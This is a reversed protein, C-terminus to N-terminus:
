NSFTFSYLKARDFEFELQILDLNINKQFCLSGDTITKIIKESTIIYEGNKDFITVALWGNEFVDVSILIDRFGFPMLTTRIKGTSEKKIQEYGAFGDPRLTALCLSGNRWGFHLYDSGGYYLRIENSLFIPTACPYVCGFDYDLLKNSTPILATGPSIRNWNKTDTSWALETWTRDSETSYIVPLGLYVGAFYFVPMAYIQDNADDGQLVVEEKTWNFFDESELRAVQRLVKKNRKKYWSRTICVYKGLTPAWFANNHTDGEVDVGKIKKERPWDLGNFSMSVSMGQFIIKFKSEQSIANSDSFVGAGHPGRWIINNNKSGQFQVIGLAPKIWDIGDKSYAYCIGMERNKPPDYTKNRDALTMGKASHDIIFPSYWCQYICENNNYIMNGYFNDYRKEWPKDETFLPNADHKHATGVVLKTNNQIDILRNDLLLFKNKKSNM